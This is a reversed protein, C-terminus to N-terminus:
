ANGSGGTASIPSSGLPALNTPQLYVDGGDTLPNLNELARIDNASYAGVERMTRYFSGRAAQDGRLLGEISFEIFFRDPQQILDRTLRQEWLVLDPRLTFVMFGIQQQEIGTGWSTSKETDGIMHPPVHFAGAIESRSLKRTEFFQGDEPSLSLQEIEMGEEIVAIRKKDPGRGYTAEWSDELNKKAKDSLTNKHKLAITPTADRSWLSNAHNQTAIAGGIVERMDQLVSRGKQGDTSLGKLHLVEGPAMPLITGRRTHYKYGGPGGLDSGDVIEVRDPHMPILEVTDQYTVGNVVIPVQNKWAYANGRLVRHAELMGFLESRTQWTNPQSLVKAARHWPAPRKSRDDLREYVKVPLSALARARLSVCTLVTMVSLASTEDIGAGATSQISRGLYQALDYSSGIMSRREFM